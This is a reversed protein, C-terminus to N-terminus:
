VLLGNREFITNKEFFVVTMRVGFAFREGLSAMGDGIVLLWCGVVLVWCGFKM